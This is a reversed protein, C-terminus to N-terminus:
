NILEWVFLGERSYKGFFIFKKGNGSLVLRQFNHTLRLLFNM